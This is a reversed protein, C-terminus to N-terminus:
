ASACAEVQRRLRRITDREIRLQDVETGKVVLGQTMRERESVDKHPSTRPELQDGQTVNACRTMKKDAAVLRKRWHGGAGHTFNEKKFADRRRRTVAARRSVKWDTQTKRAGKARPTTNPRFIDRISRAVTARRPKKKDTEQKKRAL